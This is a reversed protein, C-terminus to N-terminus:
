VSMNKAFILVLFYRICCFNLAAPVFVRLAFIRAKGVVDPTATLDCGAGLSVVWIVWFGGLHMM